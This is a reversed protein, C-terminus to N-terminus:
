DVPFREKWRKQMSVIQTLDKFGSMDVLLVKNGIKIVDGVSMSTHHLGKKRILSNAEGYPSWFEGQMLKFIESPKNERIKGLLIHSKQPIESFKLKKTIEGGHKFLFNWGMNFDRFYEPRMYWIETKGPALGKLDHVKAADNVSKYQFKQKEKAMAEIDAFQKYMIERDTLEFLEKYEEDERLAKSIAALVNAQQIIEEKSAGRARLLKLRNQASVLKGITAKGTFLKKESLYLVRSRGNNWLRYLTGSFSPQEHEIRWGLKELKKLSDYTREKFLEDEEPSFYQGGGLENTLYEELLGM